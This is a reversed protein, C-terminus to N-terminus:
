SLAGEVADFSVRNILDNPSGSRVARFNGAILPLVSEYLDWTDGAAHPTVIVNDLAWFPHDSPLPEPTFVDLAAGAIGRAQLVALLADQDVVGGRAINIFYGDRKMAALIRADILHRTGASQPVTVVLIDTAAAAEALQERTVVADFGPASTRGASVGVIRMGFPRLRAALAEAIAGLGVITVTRGALTNGRIRLPWHRDSQYAFMLPLRRVLALMQMIAFEAVAGAMAGRASTVIVDSRLNSLTRLHDTGTTLAQIWRLHPAAALMADDIEHALAIIASVDSCRALVEAPTRAGEFIVDPFQAALPTCLKEFADDLVIVRHNLVNGASRHTSGIPSVCCPPGSM